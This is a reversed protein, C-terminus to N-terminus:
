LEARSWATHSNCSFINRLNDWFLLFLNANQIQHDSRLLSTSKLDFPETPMTVVLQSIIKGFFSTKMWLM